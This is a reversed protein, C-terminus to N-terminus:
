RLNLNFCAMEASNRILLYGNSLAPHNWTKGEIAQFRGKELHEQPIAPVLALEGQGSLIILHGSALILQGYGYRGGKWMREGTEANLCALISEDLGYIYGDHFVSSTFKNKMWQNKWITQAQFGNEVRAVEVAACGTGYGASLFFRNQGILIPQGINRNNMKVEWPIDWLREGDQLSLGMAHTASVLLLQERGAFDATMPSSYAAPDSQAHWQLEGTELDYAAAYHGGAGGPTVIVSGAHVLPSASQGYYLNSANHAALLNTKWLLSGDEANLCHFDGEAGLAYVKGDHWAPTSRPGNGGMYEEFRAPYEYAWIERGSRVDYATVAENQRRQELTFAKGHAVAFSGYGGGAPQRWVPSLGKEPWRTLVPKEDYRGQRNPGRFGTWYASGDRNISASSAPADTFSSVQQNRHKELAQFDPRTRNLTISPLYGGPWELELLNVQILVFVIAAAYVVTYLLIGISELARSLFSRGSYLWLHVLGAPPFLWVLWRGLSAQSGKSKGDNMM